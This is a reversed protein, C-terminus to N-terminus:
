VARRVARQTAKVTRGAVTGLFYAVVGGVVATAALNLLTNAAGNM